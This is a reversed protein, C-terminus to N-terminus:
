SNTMSQMLYIFRDSILSEVKIKKAENTFSLKIKDGEIKKFVDKLFENSIAVPHELSKTIPDCNVMASEPDEGRRAAEVRISKEGEKIYLLSKEQNYLGVFNIASTLDPKDIVAEFPTKIGSIGIFNPYADKVNSSTICVRAKLNPTSLIVHEDDGVDIFDVKDENEFVKVVRCLLDANILIKADKAKDSKIEVDQSDISWVACRRGDTGALYAKNDKIVIAIRDLLDSPADADVAFAVSSVAKKLQEAKVTFLIDNFDYNTESFDNISFTENKGKRKEVNESKAVTAIKGSPKNEVKEADETHSIVLSSSAPLTELMKLYTETNVCFAVDGDTKIEDNTPLVYLISVKPSSSEFTISGKTQTSSIKVCSDAPRIKKRDEEMAEETLSAMGGKDISSIMTKLPISLKTM